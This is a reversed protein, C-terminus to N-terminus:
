ILYEVIEIEIDMECSILILVINCYDQKFNIIFREVGRYIQM